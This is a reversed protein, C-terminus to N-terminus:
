KGDYRQFTSFQCPFGILQEDIYNTKLFEIVRHALSEEVNRHGIGSSSFSEKLGFSDDISDGGFYYFNDSLLVYESKTDRNLNDLNTVGNEYSHHSDAQQWINNKDKHYINDGYMVINSGNLAPKKCQFDPHNWYEDYTIKETVEMAYVLKNDDSKPTLGFVWDGVNANNRINPKCTALSCTGHFPNPAFGFDRVVIYSFYKM